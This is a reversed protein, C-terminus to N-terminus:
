YLGFLFSGVYVNWYPATIVALLQLVGANHLLRAVMLQNGGVLTRHFDTDETETVVEADRSFVQKAKSKSPPCGQM